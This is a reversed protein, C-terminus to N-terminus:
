RGRMVDNMERVSLGQPLAFGVRDGDVWKVTANALFRNGIRVTALAGRSFNKAVLACLGKQSFNLLEGDIRHGELYASFPAALPIRVSRYAAASELINRESCNAVGFRNGEQWIVTGSRYGHDGWRYSLHQGVLFGDVAEFGAGTESLDRLMAVSSRDNFMLCAPKLTRIARTHERREQLKPVANM